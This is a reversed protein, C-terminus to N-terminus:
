SAQPLLEANNSSGEVIARLAARKIKGSSTKPITGVPSVVVAVPTIGTREFCAASAMEILERAETSRTEVVVVIGETALNSIRGFSGVRSVPISLAKSVAQEVDVPSIKRGMVVILDKSRTVFYVEGEDLYGIDGTRLWGDQLALQTQAPNRYYGNMLTASKLQVHGVHREQLIDGHDDVIRFESGPVKPPGLCVFGTAAHTDGRARSLTSGVAIDQAAAYDVVLGRRASALVTTEAMGYAAYFSTAEFGHPEALQLFREVEIPFIPEAACVLSRVERLDLGSPARSSMRTSLQTLASPPGATHVPGVGSLGKLWLTPAAVFAETRWLISTMRGFVPAFVGCMLGFDHFLPMWNFSADGPRYGFTTCWTAANNAVAANTLACGKPSGTSGSSFQLLALEGPAGCSEHVAPGQTADDSLERDRIYALTPFDTAQAVSKDSVIIATPECIAILSNLYELQADRRRGSMLPETPVAVAGLLQAGWFWVPFSAEVQFSLLVRSGRRVGLAALHQAARRALCELSRRTLSPYRETSRDVIAVADPNEACYRLFEGGLSM